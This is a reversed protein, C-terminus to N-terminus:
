RVWASIGADQPGPAIDVWNHLPERREVPFRLKRLVEDQHPYAVVDLMDDSLNGGAESWRSYEDSKFQDWTDRRDKKSPHGFGTRPWLVKGAQQAQGYLAIRQEKSRVTIAPLPEVRFRYKRREQERKVHSVYGVAGFEEIFVCTPKWLKELVFTLDVMEQQTGKERWLDLSYFLKDEGLGLVYIAHYNSRRSSGEGALDVFFFVSKGQREVDPDNSYFRLWDDALVRDGRAVPFGEMQCSFVYPGMDHRWKEIMEKSHIVPEGRRDDPRGDWCWHDRRSFMGAEMAQLWPGREDWVTGNYWVLADDRRIAVANQLQQFAVAMSYDTQVTEQVEADDIFIYPVHWGTPLRGLSHISVSPERIGPKRIVTMATNTLEPYESDKSPFIEPWLRHYLPNQTLEDRIAGFLSTGVQDVKYTMLVIALSPDKALIWLVLYRVLLSTKYAYRSWNWWIRDECAELSRQVDRTRDFLWPHEIWLTGCRPNDPDHIVHGSLSTVYRCFFWYDKEAMARMLAYGRAAKHPVAVLALIEEGIERYLPDDPSSPLTM